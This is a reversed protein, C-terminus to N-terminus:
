VGNEKQSPASQRQRNKEKKSNEKGADGGRPIPFKAKALGFAGIKFPRKAEPRELIWSLGLERENILGQSAQGQKAKALGMATGITESQAEREPRKSKANKPSSQGFDTKPRL